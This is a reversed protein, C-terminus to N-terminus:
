VPPIEGQGSANEERPLGDWSHGGCIIGKLRRRLRFITAEDYSPAVIHGRDMVFNHYDRLFSDLDKVLKISAGMQEGSGHARIIYSAAVTSLGGLTCTAVFEPQFYSVTCHVHHLVSSTCYLSTCTGSLGSRHTKDCVCVYWSDDCGICSAHHDRLQVRIQTKKSELSHM